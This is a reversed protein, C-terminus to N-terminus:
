ATREEQHVGEKRKDDKLQRVYQSQEARVPITGRKALRRWWVRGVRGQTRGATLAALTM